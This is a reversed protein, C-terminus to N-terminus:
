EKDVDANNAKGAPWVRNIPSIVAITKAKKMILYSLLFFFLFFFNNLLIDHCFFRQTNRISLETFNEFHSAIHFLIAMNQPMFGLM